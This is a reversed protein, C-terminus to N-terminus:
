PKEDYGRRDEMLYDSVSKQGPAVRPLPEWNPDLPPPTFPDVGQAILEAYMAQEFASLPSIRAVPVGDRTVVVGSTASPLEDLVKATERSLTRMTITAM